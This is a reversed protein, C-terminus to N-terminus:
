RCKRANLWNFFYAEPLLKSLICNTKHQLASRHQTRQIDPCFESIKDVEKDLERRHERRETYCLHAM